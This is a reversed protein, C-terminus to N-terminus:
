VVDPNRRWDLDAIRPGGFVSARKLGGPSDDQAVDVLAEDLAFRNEVPRAKVPDRKEPRGQDAGQDPKGSDSEQYPANVVGGPAPERARHTHHSKDEEESRERQDGSPDGAPVGGLDGDGAPADEDLCPDDIPPSKRPVPPVGSCNSRM